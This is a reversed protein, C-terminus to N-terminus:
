KTLAGILNNYEKLVEAETLATKYLKAGVVTFSGTRGFSESPYAPNLGIGLVDFDANGLKFQGDGYSGVSVHKGNYYLNLTNTAKDYTGVCHVLQKEPIAIPGTAVNTTAAYGM